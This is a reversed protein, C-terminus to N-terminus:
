KIPKEELTLPRPERPHPTPAPAAAAGAGPEQAPRLAEAWRGGAGDQISRRRLVQASTCAAGWSFHPQKGPPILDSPDLALGRCAAEQLCTFSSLAYLIFLNSEIKNGSEIKIEQSNNM